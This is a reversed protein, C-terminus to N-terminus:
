RELAAPHPSGPDVGRRVLKPMSIKYYYQYLYRVIVNKEETRSSMFLLNEIHSMKTGIYYCIGPILILCCQIFVYLTFNITRRRKLIFFFSSIILHIGNCWLSTKICEIYIVQLKSIRNHRKCERSVTFRLFYIVYLKFNFSFVIAHERM